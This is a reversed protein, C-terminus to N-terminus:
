KADSPHLVTIGGYRSFDGTNFTLLHDIGHAEMLAVLRTDHAQRGRIDHRAVLTRWRPLIDSPEPLWALWRGSDQLALSAAHPDLGLGNAGIPRTAVSWYEIAVQACGRAEDGRRLLQRMASICIAHDPSGSDSLRVLINTDVLFIM